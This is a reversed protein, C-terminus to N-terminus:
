FGLPGAPMPIDLWRVFLVHSAAASLAATLAAAGWAVGFVRLLGVMLLLGSAVYGIAPLLATGLAVVGVFLLVRRTADDLRRSAALPAAAPKPQERRVRVAHAAALGMLMLGLALPYLGSGPAWLSGIPYRLSLAVTAAGFVFWAIAATM